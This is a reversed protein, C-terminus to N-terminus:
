ALLGAKRWTLAWRWLYLPWQKVLWNKKYDARFPEDLGKGQAMATQALAMGGLLAMGTLVTKMSTKKRTVTTMTTELFYNIHIARKGAISPL